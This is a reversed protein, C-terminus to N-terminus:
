LRVNAELGFYPTVYRRIRYDNRVYSPHIDLLKNVFLALTLRDGLLKKTAKVNLNMYFPVTQREYLSSNYSRVLFQKYIDELDAETFDHVTGYRDIYQDPVNQKPMSQSATQWMCQASLSFGLKLRPIDTDFTFNTNWMERIYGDDDKYIGAYHLREGAVMRSPIETVSMSNQYQTKFYAGTVTLRTNIVPIRASSFTYEWGKKLTRSGNQTTAYGNLEDILEYELTSPDPISTIANHDISSTDYKKYPYDGYIGMSRFGSKMDEQFYTVSLRNGRYSVDARVEWKNNRAAHLRFNTPDVIYTQLYIGRYDKVTHWYNMEVLDIYTLEPYLQDITPFKTHMGYGGGLMVSLEHDNIRIGPFTWGLNVRPDLYWKGNLEYRADLHLMTTARLGAEIDFKHRGFHIGLREELYESLSQESPIDSYKRQRASIGPYLPNAPNFIQGDGLNKDLQWDIGVKTKNSVTKLPFSLVANAKAYLNLPKGDVKHTATYTYPTILMAWNEGETKSTAAPTERDLQVLRTRETVDREYATSFLLNWSKFLSREKKNDMDLSLDIAYRSYDSKYKDVGGYNLEPDIDDDDFSGSYDLNAGFHYQHSNRNWQKNYRSSVTVRKYTELLNRPDAKSDLYDVSLNLSSQSKTWEIGKAVYFLKSEMDAKFRASIDNGGRRRNIKVLGSTLDGYEVSPIGRVIEIDNIDDTSITRMDVGANTFDRYTTTIDWAGDVFQMNANTSRPAGDIVFRTGLSSTNYQSSSIGAERLSIINPTSLAPDHAMGGPLLELVDAFSSPQLHEMAHKEIKSSSGLGKSETATVVVDNLLKNDFRMKYIANDSLSVILTDYGIYTIVARADFSAPVSVTFRGESDTVTGMAKNELLQVVAGQLPETNKSDVVKCKYIHQAKINCPLCILILLIYRLLSEMLITM